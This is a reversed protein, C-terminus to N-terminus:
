KNSYNAGEVCLFGSGILANRLARRDAINHEKRNLKRKLEGEMDRRIKRKEARFALRFNRREQATIPEGSKFREDRTLGDAGVTINSRERAWALDDKTWTETRGHLLAHHAAHTKAENVANEGSGNYPACYPPSLLLLVGMESLLRRFSRSIFAPGNDSKIVLPPGYYSILFLITEEVSQTDQAKAAANTLEKRSALDRVVLFAPYGGELPVPPVAFDMSWVSGPRTWTLRLVKRKHTLKWYARFRKMERKLEGVPYNSHLRRLTPEGTSPGLDTMSRWLGALAEFDVEKPPRGRAVLPARMMWRLITRKAVGLLGTIFNWPAGLLRM